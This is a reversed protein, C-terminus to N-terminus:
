KFFRRELVGPHDRLPPAILFKPRGTLGVLVVGAV